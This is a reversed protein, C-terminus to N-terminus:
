QESQNGEGSMAVSVDQTGSSTKTYVRNDYRLDFIRTEPDRRLIGAVSQQYKQMRRRFQRNGVKLIHVHEGAAYVVKLNDAESADIESIQKQWEKADAYLKLSRRVKLARQEQPEDPTIGRVAPLALKVAAEQPLIEGDADIYVPLQEHGNSPLILFAAPVREEVRVRLQNPWVRTVTAKAIWRNELLARHRQKLNVFYLSRGYDQTFVSALREKSTYQVGEFILNPSIEGPESPLAVTFKPDRLLYSELQQWGAFVGVILASVLAFVVLGRMVLRLNELNSPSESRKGM